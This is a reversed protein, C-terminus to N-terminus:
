QYSVEIIIELFLQRSTKPLAVGGGGWGWGVCVCVYVREGICM